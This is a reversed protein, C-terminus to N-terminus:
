APRSVPRICQAAALRFGNGFGFCRKGSANAVVLRHLEEEVGLPIGQLSVGVALADFQHAINGDIDARIGAIQPGVRFQELGIALHVQRLNGSARRIGKCRITLQPAIRQVVPRNVLGGAKRPPLLAHLM